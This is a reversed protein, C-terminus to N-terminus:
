LLIEDGWACKCGTTKLPLHPDFLLLHKIHKFL